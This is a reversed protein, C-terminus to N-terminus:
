GELVAVNGYSQLLSEAASESLGDGVRYESMGCFVRISNVIKVIRYNHGSAGSLAPKLTIEIQKKM